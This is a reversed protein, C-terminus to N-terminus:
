VARYRHRCRPLCTRPIRRCANSETESSDTTTARNGGKRTESRM